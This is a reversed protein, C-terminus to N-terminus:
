ESGHERGILKPRTIMRERMIVILALRRASPLALGIDSLRIAVPEAIRASTPHAPIWPRDQQGCPNVVSAASAFVVPEM